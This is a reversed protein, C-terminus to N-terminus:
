CAFHKLKSVTCRASARTSCRIMDGAFSRSLAEASYRIVAGTSCRALAEKSFRTLAGASIQMNRTIFFSNLEVLHHNLRDFIGDIIPGSAM